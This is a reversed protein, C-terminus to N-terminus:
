MIDFPCPERGASKIAVRRFIYMLSLEVGGRVHSARTLTSINFDYSIGFKCNQWRTTLILILADNWRYFTGVGFTIQSDRKNAFLYELNVGFNVEYFRRQFSTFIM